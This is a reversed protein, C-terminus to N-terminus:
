ANRGTQGTTGTPQGSIGYQNNGGNTIDLISRRYALFANWMNGLCERLKIRYSNEDKIELNSFIYNINQSVRKINSQGALIDKKRNQEQPTQGNNPFVETNFQLVALGIIRLANNHYETLVKIDTTVPANRNLMIISNLVMRMFSAEIYFRIDFISQQDAKEVDDIVNKAQEIYDM